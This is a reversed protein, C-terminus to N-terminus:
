ENEPLARLFWGITVHEVIEAPTLQDPQLWQWAIQLLADM